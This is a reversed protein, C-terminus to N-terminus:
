DAWRYLWPLAGHRRRSQADERDPLYELPPVALFPLETDGWKETCKFLPQLMGESLPRSIINLSEASLALHQDAVIGHILSSRSGHHQTVLLGGFRCPWCGLFGEKEHGSARGEQFKTSKMDGSFRRERQKSTKRPKDEGTVLSLEQPIPLSWMKKQERDGTGARPRSCLPPFTSCFRFPFWVGWGSLISDLTGAKQVKGEWM